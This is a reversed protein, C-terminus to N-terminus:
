FYENNFKNYIKNEKVCTTGFKTVSIASAINSLILTKKTNVNKLIYNFFTSGFVDGAGTIDLAKVKLPKTKIFNNNNLNFFISGQNGLTIILNPIKYKKCIKNLINTLQYKKNLKIKKKTLNEFFIKNPKIYDINEYIRFNYNKPDVFIPLKNKKSFKKIFKIIDSNIFGKNYDSIYIGDIKKISHILKKIVYFNKKSLYELKEIDHRLLSKNKYSFRIKTTTEKKYPLLFSKIRMKNLVKKAIKGHYDKGIATIFYVNNNLKKLNLAVNAAGGLRYSNIAKSVIQVPSELSKKLLNGIVYKDLIFDGLILIKKKNKM